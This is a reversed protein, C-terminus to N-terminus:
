RDAVKLIAVVGDLQEWAGRSKDFSLGHQEAFWAVSWRASGRASSWSRPGDRPSDCLAIVPRLFEPLLGRERLVRILSGAADLQSADTSTAADSLAWAAIPRLQQDTPTLLGTSIAEVVLWASSRTTPQFHDPNLLPSAGAEDGSSAFALLSEIVGFSHGGVPELARFATPNSLALQIVPPDDDGVPESEDAALGILLRSGLSFRTQMSGMSRVAEIEPVSITDHDIVGRYVRVVRMTAVGPLPSVEVGRKVSVVEVVALRPPKTLLEEINWLVPRNDARAPVALACGLVIVVISRVTIRVM